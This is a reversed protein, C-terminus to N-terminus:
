IRKGGDMEVIGSERFSIFSGDRWLQIMDVFYQCELGLGRMGMYNCDNWLTDFHYESVFCNCGQGNVIWEATKKDRIDVTRIHDACYHVVAYCGFGNGRNTANRVCSLLGYGVRGHKMSIPRDRLFRPQSKCLRRDMDMEVIWFSDEQDKLHEWAVRAMEAAGYVIKWHEPRKVGHVTRVAPLISQNGKM